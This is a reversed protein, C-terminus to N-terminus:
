AFIWSKAPRARDEGCSALWSLVGLADIEKQDVKHTRIWEEIAKREQSTLSRCESVIASYTRDRYHIRSAIAKLEDIIADAFLKSAKLKALTPEVNVLPETLPLYNLEAPAHLEAVAADDTLSGDAYNRYIEGIGIMGFEHCEAARLAGMSAGGALQVGRDLAFLLEKHWVSQVDDFVGDILGIASAGANVASAVDGARAPARFVIGAYEGALQDRCRYLSPGVFAVKM